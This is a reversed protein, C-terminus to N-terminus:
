VPALVRRALTTLDAYYAAEKEEPPIGGLTSQLRRNNYCDVWGARVWEVDDISRLPGTRFPSGDRVAKNKFSGITSEALVNDYDDGISGISAAIGEM